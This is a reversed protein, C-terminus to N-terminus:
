RNWGSSLKLASNSPNGTKAPQTEGGTSAASKKRLYDKGEAEGEIM